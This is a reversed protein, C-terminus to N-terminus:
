VYMCLSDDQLFVGFRRLDKLWTEDVSKHECIFDFESKLEKSDYNHPVNLYIIDHSAGGIIDIGSSPNLNHLMMFVNIDDKSCFINNKSIFPHKKYEELPVDWEMIEYFQEMTVM